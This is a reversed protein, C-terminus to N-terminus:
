KQKKMVLSWISDTELSSRKIILGNGALVSNDGEYWGPFWSQPYIIQSEFMTKQGSQKQVILQYGSTDYNESVFRKLINKATEDGSINVKFPLRYKFFVQGTEGPNIIIWNGFVTKGFEESLRTGTMDDFGIEKETELLFVDKKTWADPARFSREDPWTFGGASILESGLPVYLRLYNINTQGYLKEGQPGTHERTIVVTDIISGDEAIEVQHSINQIIYADSKQGQINTNVAMLYDQDNKIPLIQGSWGYTKVTNEVEEDVFFAQIEKKELAESLNLLLPTIHEPKSNLIYNVFLPALDSIIQKPKNDTKEPGEEVIKQITVIANSSDLTLARQNDQIPGIISLLRELVTANIAIVGDATIQRAHRYFWLMKQASAPFDPFWNSDQFEWRKNSLLLPTPPEVFVDLQGQLDYSGGSPIDLNVIKGNKVDIIAFSGLFGGTPRIEHPNQFAILYRRLGEGGFIEDIALGLETLNELDDLFAAFLIRFDQFVNQYELPLVSPDIEAMDALAAEYNPIASKIYSIIFKIRETLPAEKNSEAVSLGKIFYTNGLAIKHGATIIKQRSQVENSLIPVASAIKQLLKHNGNMAEMASDFNQLASTIFFEAGELDSQTIAATSEQLAMFGHTGETAIKETTLKVSQYFSNAKFPALILIVAVATQWSLKILRASRNMPIKTKKDQTKQKIPQATDAIIKKNDEFSIALLDSNKKISLKDFTKKAAREDKFSELKSFFSQWFSIKKKPKLLNVPPLDIKPCVTIKPPIFFQEEIKNKYSYYEPCNPNPSFAGIQAWPNNQNKLNVVHPSASQSKEEHIYMKLVPTEINKKQKKAANLFEPCRSKNHGTKQCISCKRVQTKRQKKIM